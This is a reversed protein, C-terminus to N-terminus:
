DGTKNLIAKTEVWCSKEGYESFRGRDITKEILNEAYQNKQSKLIVIISNVIKQNEGTELLLEAYHYFFKPIGEKKETCISNITSIAREGLGGKNQCDIVYELLKLLIKDEQFYKLCVIANVRHEERRLESFLLTEIHKKTDKLNERSLINELSIVAVNSIQWKIDKDEIITKLINFSEKISLIHSLLIVAKIEKINGKSNSNQVIENLEYAIFKKHFLRKKQFWEIDSEDIDSEDSSIIGELKKKTEPFFISLLKNIKIKKIPLCGIIWKVIPSIIEAILSTGIEVLLKSV